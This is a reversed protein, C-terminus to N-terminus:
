CIAYHSLPKYKVITCTQSTSGKKGALLICLLLSTKCYRSPSESLMCLQREWHDRSLCPSAYSAFYWLLHFGLSSGLRLIAVNIHFSFPILVPVAITEDSHIWAELTSNTWQLRRRRRAGQIQKLSVSLKWHPQFTREEQSHRRIGASFWICNNFFKDDGDKPKWLFGLLFCCAFKNRTQDVRWGRVHPRLKQGFRRSAKLPSRLMDCFINM